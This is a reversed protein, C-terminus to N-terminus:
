RRKRSARLAALLALAAIGLLILGIWLAPDGNDGTRPVPRPTPTPEPPITGGLYVEFENNFTATEDYIGIGKIVVRIKQHTQPHVIINLPLTITQTKGASITESDHPLSFNRGVSSDDEYVTCYLRIAKDNNYYNHITIELMEEGYYDTYVRHGVDIDHISVDLDVPEPAAMESPYLRLATEDSVAATGFLQTDQGSSSAKLGVGNYALMKPPQVPKQLMLKGTDEDLTYNLRFLGAGAQPDQLAAMLSAANASAKLPNETNDFAFLQPHKQALASAALWNPYTSVQTLKLRLTYKGEWSDPIKLNTTYGGLAGPVLVNTVTRKVATEGASSTVNTYNTINYAKNQSSVTWEHQRPSYLFDKYRYFAQEGKIATKGDAMVIRSDDPYLCNAWLTEVTQKERGNEMLMVDIRFSGIGMNGENMMTLDTTVFDGQCVVNDMVAADKLVGVPKLTIPFSYLTLPAVQGKEVNTNPKSTIYGTGSDTLMIEFPVSKYTKGNWTCDPLSFEAIVLEDSVVGTSSDYYVGSIRWLLPDTDKERPATTLWYLYQSTGLTVTSFDAAPISLDYDTYTINYTIDAGEGQRPAIYISKLRIVERDGVTETKTYFITQENTYYTEAWKEGAPHLVAMSSIDGTDLAIAKRDSNTVTWYVNNLDEEHKTYQVAAKSMDMDFLEVCSDGVIGEKPRTLAVFGPIRSDYPAQGPRLLVRQSNEGLAKQVTWDSLLSSSLGGESPSFHFALYGNEGTRDNYASFTGCLVGQYIREIKPSSIVNYGTGTHPIYDYLTQYENLPTRLIIKLDGNEQAKGWAFHCANYFTYKGDANIINGKPMGDTNFEKGACAIIGIQSGDSIVDFDYDDFYALQYHLEDHPRDSYDNSKPVFGSRGTRLNKWWVCNTMIDSNPVSKAPAIYFVYQEGGLEVAKIRARINEANSMVKQAEPALQPYSEPELHTIEGSTSAEDAYATMLWFPPRNEVASKYLVVPSMEYLVKSYSIFFFEFGVSVTFGVTVTLHVPQRQLFAIAVNLSGTAAVWISALGKVGAGVSVTLALRIEITFGGLDFNYDIENGDKDRLMRFSLSIGFGCSASFNINLYFPVPGLAGPQTYDFSFVFSLGAMGGATWASTGDDPDKSEWKGSLMIFWGLDLKTDRMGQRAAAMYKYYKAATGLQQKKSAISANHQFQKMGKDYREQEKNKWEKQIKDPNVLSSGFTVTVYGFIDTTVTPLYGQFPFNLGLKGGIGPITVNFGFSEGFVKQLPSGPETGAIVPQDVASRLPTLTTQLKEGSDPFLFYPRQEKNIDPSLIQKWKGSYIYRIRNGSVTQSATPKMVKEKPFFDSAKGSFEWYHLEPATYSKGSPNVVEIAFDFSNSNLESIRVVKDSRWIDMDNFTCSYVFPQPAESEQDAARNRSDGNLASDTLKTLVETRHAGQKMILWPIHFSRYGLASGDVTLSLEMEQDYDCVFDASDFKAVGADPDETKVIKVATGNLDRVTVEVGILPKNGEGRIAIAFQNKTIVNITVDKEGSADALASGVPSLRSLLTGSGNKEESPISATKVVATEGIDLVERIWQSFGPDVKGDLMEQGWVGSVLMQEIALALIDEELTDLENVAERIQVSLRIKEHDFLTNSNNELIQVNQEIQNICETVRNHLLRAQQEMEEADLAFTTCDKAYESYPSGTLRAYTVPDQTELKSLKTNARSYVETVNYIDTRLMDDLWDLLMRADWTEDPKMGRHYRSEKAQVVIVDDESRSIQLCAIQLAKGIEEDTILNEGAAFANLPLSQCLLVILLLATVLRNMKKM